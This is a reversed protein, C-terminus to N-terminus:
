QLNSSYSYMDNETVFYCTVFIALSKGSNWWDYREVFCWTYIPRVLCLSALLLGDKQDNLVRSLLSAATAIRITYSFVLM